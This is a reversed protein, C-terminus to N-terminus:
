SLYIAADHIFDYRKVGGGGPPTFQGKLWFPLNHTAGSAGLARISLALSVSAPAGTVTLRWNDTQGKIVSTIAVKPDIGTTGIVEFMARIDIPTGFDERVLVLTLEIVTGATFGAVGAPPAVTIGLVDGDKIKNGRDYRNRPTIKVPAGGVTKTWFVTFPDDIHVVPKGSLNAEDFFFVRAPASSVPALTAGNWTPLDDDKAGEHCLVVWRDSMHWANNAARWADRISAGQRLRKVFSVNAGASGDAAVSAGHYGLIGRLSSNADMLALWDNHTEPVLTNCNSLILWKVGDFHRGEAASKALIFFPDVEDIFESAAGFMDGTRVGHSSLYVLDAVRAGAGLSQGAAGVDCRPSFVFSQIFDNSSNLQAINGHQTTSPWNGKDVGTGDPGEPMICIDGFSAGNGAIQERMFRIPLEPHLRDIRRTIDGPAPKWDFLLNQWGFEQWMKGIVLSDIAKTGDITVYFLPQAPPRVIM